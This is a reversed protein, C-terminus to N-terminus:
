RVGRRPAARPLRPVGPAPSQRAATAPGRPLKLAGKPARGQPLPHRGPTKAPVLLRSRDRGGPRMGVSSSQIGAHGATYPGGAARQHDPLSVGTGQPPHHGAGAPVPRTAAGQRGAPQLDGRPQGGAAPIKRVRPDRRRASGPHLAALWFHLSGIMRWTWPRDPQVALFSNAAQLADFVWGRDALLSIRQARVAPMVPEAKILPALIKLAREHRQHRQEYRARELLADPLGPVLREAERVAKLASGEHGAAFHARALLMRYLPCRPHAEALATAEAVSRKFFGTRRSWVAQLLHKFGHPDDPQEKLWAPFSDPEPQPSTDASRDPTPHIEASHTLQLPNGALDTLRLRLHWRGTRQCVKCKLKNWGPELRGGAVYQDLAGLHAQDDSLLRRGNLWLKVGRYAGLRLAIEQASESKIYTVLYACTWRSPDLLAALNVRGDYDFHEVRRWGVPRLKGPYTEQYNQFGKEPPYETDFGANQDNDFPGVLMWDRLYGLRAFAGASETHRGLDRLAQGYFHLARARVTPPVSQREIVTKLTVALLEAQGRSSYVRYALWIYLEAARDGSRIAQLLHGFAQEEDVLLTATWAAWQRCTSDDPDLEVARAFERQAADVKGQQVLLEVGKDRHAKAQARHLDSVLHPDPILRGTCATSLIVVAISLLTARM